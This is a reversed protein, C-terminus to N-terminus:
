FTQLNPSNRQRLKRLAVDSLNEALIGKPMEAQPDRQSPYGKSSPTFQKKPSEPEGRGRNYDSLFM